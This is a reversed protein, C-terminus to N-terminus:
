GLLLVAGLGAELVVELDAVLVAEHLLVGLSAGPQVELLLAGLLHIAALVLALVLSGCPLV